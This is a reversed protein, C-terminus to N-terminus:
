HPISAQSEKTLSFPFNNQKAGKCILIEKCGDLSGSTM